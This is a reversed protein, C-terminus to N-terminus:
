GFHWGMLGVALPVPAVAVILTLLTTLPAFLRSLGAFMLIGGGGGLVANGPLNILIALAVYRYRLGWSPLWRPLSANLLGLRADRDLPAIRDLAAVARTLKVRCLAGRLTSDPLVAGALYAMSLGAITAAYVAPAMWAGEVMLLAMGIEVGPVFPLALMVAYVALLAVIVWVATPAGTDAIHAQAGAWGFVWRLALVALVVLGFRVVYGVIRGMTDRTVHM